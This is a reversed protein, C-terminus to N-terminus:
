VRRCVNRSTRCGACAYAAKKEVLETLTKIIGEERGQERGIEMGERIGDSHIDDIAKCMDVVEEKENFVLKSGTVISLMNAATGSMKKYAPDTHILETMKNKDASCKIFKLVASLETAFKSFDEDPISAPSILHVHYNDVYRRVTEDVDMMGYLDLPANWEDAGFYVTLTIVPILRDTKYFGSMFEGASGPKDKNKRHREAIQAIQGSYQLVDYEMTKVPMVPNIVSQNEMGLILYIMKGDTKATLAKLIDRYKQIMVPPDNGKFLEAIVATDLPILNEPIIVQEGGYLYFNFADAFIKNDQMYKKTVADKDSM